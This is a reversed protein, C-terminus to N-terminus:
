AAQAVFRGREALLGVLARDIRDINVRVEDLSNCRIDNM